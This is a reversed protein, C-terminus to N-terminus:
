PFGWITDSKLLSDKTPHQRDIGRFHRGLGPREFGSAGINRLRSGLTPDLKEM